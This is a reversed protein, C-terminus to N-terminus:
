NLGVIAVGAAILAGGIWQMPGLRERFFIRGGALMVITSASSLLVGQSLPLLSLVALWLVFELVFCGIGTWIWPEAAYRLWQRRWTASAELGSVSARKFSLQGAADTALCLGMLLAQSPTM